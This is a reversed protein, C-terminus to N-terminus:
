RRNHYKRIYTKKVSGVYVWNKMKKKKKKFEIKDENKKGRSEEDNSM